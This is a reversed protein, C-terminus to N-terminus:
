GYKERNEVFNIQRDLEELYPKSSLIVLFLLLDVALNLSALAMRIEHNEVLVLEKNAARSLEEISSKVGEIQAKILRPDPNPLM